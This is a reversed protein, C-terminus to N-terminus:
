DSSQSESLHRWRERMEGIYLDFEHQTWNGMGSVSFVDLAPFQHIGSAPAKRQIQKKVVDLFGDTLLYNRRARIKKLVGSSVLARLVKSVLSKDYPLRRFDQTDFFVGELLVLLSVLAAIEERKTKAM